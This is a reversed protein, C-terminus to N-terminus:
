RIGGFDNAYVNQESARGTSRGYGRYDFALVDFGRDALWKAGRWQAQLNRGNGHAQVVLARPPVGPDRRAPFYWGEMLAGGAAPVRVLEVIGAEPPPPPCGRVPGFFLGTLWNSAFISLVAFALALAVVVGLARRALRRARPALSGVPPTGSQMRSTAAEQRAMGHQWVKM